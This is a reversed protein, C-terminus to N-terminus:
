WCTHRPRTKASRVANQSTGANALTRHSRWRKPSRPRTCGTCERRPRGRVWGPYPTMEGAPTSLCVRAAQQDLGARM